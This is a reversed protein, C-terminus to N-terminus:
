MMKLSSVGYLDIVKRHFVNTPKQDGTLAIYFSDVFDEKDLVLFNGVKSMGGIFIGFELAFNEVYLIYEKITMDEYPVYESDVIVCVAISFDLSYGSLKIYEYKSM